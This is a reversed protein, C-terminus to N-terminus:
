HLYSRSYYEQYEKLEKASMKKWTHLVLHKNTTWIASFQQDNINVVCLQGGNEFSLSNSEEDYKFSIDNHYPQFDFDSTYYETCIGEHFYYSVPGGGTVHRYYDEGTVKGDKITKGAVWKWGCGDLINLVHEETYANKSIPMGNQDILFDSCSTAFAISVLIFLLIRKM